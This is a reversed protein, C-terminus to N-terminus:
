YMNNFTCISFLTTDNKTKSEAIKEKIGPQKKNKKWKEENCQDNLKISSVVNKTKLDIKM